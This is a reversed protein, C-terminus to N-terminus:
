EENEWFYKLNPNKEDQYRTDNDVRRIGNDWECREYGVQQQYESADRFHLGTLLLLTILAITLLPNM